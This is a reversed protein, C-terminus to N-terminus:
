CSLLKFHNLIMHAYECCNRVVARAVSLAMIESMCRFIYVFECKYKSGNQIHHKEDKYWWLVANVIARPHASNKECMVNSIFRGLDYSRENVTAWEYYLASLAFDIRRDCRIMNVIDLRWISKETGKMHLGNKAHMMYQTWLFHTISSAKM